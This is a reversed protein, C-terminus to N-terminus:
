WELRKRLEPQNRRLWLSGEEETAGIGVAVVVTVGVAVGVAPFSVSFLLFNFKNSCGLRVSSKFPAVVIPFVVNLKVVGLM